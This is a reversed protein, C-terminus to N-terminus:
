PGEQAQILTFSAIFEPKGHRRKIVETLQLTGPLFVCYYDGRGAGKSDWWSGGQTRGTRLLVEAGQANWTSLQKLDARPTGNQAGNLLRQGEAIYAQVQFAKVPEPRLQSTLTFSTVEASGTTAAGGDKRFYFTLRLRTSVVEQEFVLTTGTAKIDSLSQNGTIWDGTGDDLTYAIDVYYDSSLTDGHVTLSKFHKPVKPLNADFWTTYAAPTGGTGSYEYLWEEDDSDIPFFMPLVESGSQKGGVWVRHHRKDGSPTGEAFISAYDSPVFMTGASVSQVQHWRWQGDIFLGRVLYQSTTTRAVLMFIFKADGTIALVRLFPPVTTAHVWHFMERLNASIDILQNDVLEYLAGPMPVLMHGQWMAAGKFNDPHAFGTADFIKETVGAERHYVYIGDTKFVYLAPGVGILATIPSSIDGISVASAWSGSNTPDTSSRVQHPQFIGYYVDDGSSHAAATTGLYGRSVTLTTGSEGTVIMWEDDVRIVSKDVDGTADSDPVINANAGSEVDFTTASDSVSGTTVNGGTDTVSLTYGGWLRETGDSEYTVAFYRFQASGDTFTSLIWDADSDAKYIYASPRFKDTAAPQQSWGPVFVNSGFVVGNRYLKPVITSSAAVAVPTTGEDWDEDTYNWLWVEHGQFSWVESGVVAFGSGIPLRNTVTSGSGITTTVRGGALKLSHPDASDISYAFALEQPNDRHLVGGLGGRWDDQHFVNEVLPDLTAHTLEVDSLIRPAITRFDTVRFGTGRKQKPYMLGVKPSGSSSDEITIHHTVGATPM